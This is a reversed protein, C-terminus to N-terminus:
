AKLTDRILAIEAATLPASQYVTASEAAGAEYVATVLRTFDATFRGDLGAQDLLATVTDAILTQKM